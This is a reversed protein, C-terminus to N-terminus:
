MRRMSSPPTLGKLRMYTVINGYHENVHSMMMFLAAVRARSQRGFALPEVATAGTLGEFAADCSAHAEKLAALLDAKSTKEAVSAPRPEGKAIACVGKELGTIHWILQGFSRVEPTPRFAYQEEPTMEAARLVFDKINGWAQRANAVILDNSAAPPTQAPAICALALFPIAFRYSM